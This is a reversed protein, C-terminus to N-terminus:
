SSPGIPVRSRRGSSGRPTWTRTGVSELPAPDFISKKKNWDLRFVDPALEVCSSAGMCVDHGVGVELKKGQVVIGTWWGSERYESRWKLVYLSVVLATTGFATWGLDTLTQDM